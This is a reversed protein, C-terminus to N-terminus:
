CNATECLSYSYGWKANYQYAGVDIPSDVVLEAWDVDPLGVHHIVDLVVVGPREPVLEGRRAVLLAASRARVGDLARSTRIKSSHRM